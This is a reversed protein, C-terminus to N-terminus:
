GGLLGGAREDRREGLQDGKLGVLKVAVATEDDQRLPGVDQAPMERGAISLGPRSGAASM